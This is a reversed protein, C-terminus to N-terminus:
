QLFRGYEMVPPGEVRISGGESGLVAVRQTICRLFLQKLRRKLGIAGRPAEVVRRLDCDSPDVPGHVRPSMWLTFRRITVTRNNGQPSPKSPKSSTPTM